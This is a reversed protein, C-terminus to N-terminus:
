KGCYRVISTEDPVIGILYLNYRVIGWLAECYRVINYKYEKCLTKLKHTEKPSKSMLFSWSGLIDRLRCRLTKRCTSVELLATPHKGCLTLHLLHWFMYSGGPKKDQCPALPWAPNQHTWEPSGRWLLVISQSLNYGPTKIQTEIQAQKTDM